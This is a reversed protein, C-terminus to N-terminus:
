VMQTGPPTHGRRIAYCDNGLPLVKYDLWQGVLDPNAADTRRMRNLDFQAEERSYYFDPATARDFEDDAEPGYMPRLKEGM